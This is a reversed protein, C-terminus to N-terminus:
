FIKFLNVLVMKELKKVPMIIQKIVWDLEIIVIKVILRIDDLINVNFFPNAMTIPELIPVVMM